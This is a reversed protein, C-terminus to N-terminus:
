LKKYEANFNIEDYKALINEEQKIEKDIKSTLIYCLQSVSKELCDLKNRTEEILKQLDIQKNLLYNQELAFKKPFCDKVILPLPEDDKKWFTQVFFPCEADTKCFGQKVYCCNEDCNTNKM